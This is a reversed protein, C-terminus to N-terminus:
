NFSMTKLLPPTINGECFYVSEHLNPNSPGHLHVMKHKLLLHQSIVCVYVSEDLSPDFPSQLLVMKSSGNLPLTLTFMEFDLGEQQSFELFFFM